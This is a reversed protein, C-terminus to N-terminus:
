KKDANRWAELQRQILDKGEELIRLQEDKSQPAPYVKLVKVRYKEGKMKRKLDLLSHIKWGGDVACVAVPLPLQDMFRRFGAAHFKGTNGDRSRTGEPFIVPVWNNDHVRQAFRDIERLASSPSGTRKVLCHRHLRLILSVAPINRGLEAKAVFRLRDAKLYHMFLPIDFLSQHNSVILYQEPLMATSSYDGAFRLGLYTSLIAFLRRSGMTVSYNSWIWSLKRHIVFAIRNVIAIQAVLQAICASMILLKM